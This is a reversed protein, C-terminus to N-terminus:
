ATRLEVGTAYIVGDRVQLTIRPLPRRPPGAIPRGENIEFYANHCPCRLQDREPQPIGAGAKGLGISTMSFLEGRALM